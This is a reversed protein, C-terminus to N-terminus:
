MNKLISLATESAADLLVVKRNVSAAKDSTSIGNIHWPDSSGLGVAIIQNEDVGLEEVLTRKVREAREQSLTMTYNSDSDGATCGCLLIKINNKALYAAIPKLTYIVDDPYLYEAKDGIFTVMEETLVIPEEFVNEESAELIEPKFSIPTDMPFEVPTVTPYEINENVPMPMADNCIFTGGGAEVFGSYLQELNNRQASTPQQQPAAVDCMHQWYVMLGSFNPIESKEKLMDVIMNPDASILNNNFNLVGSTSLGTGLVIIKKSDYGNLSSLSRVALNLAAHYDVQPDNAIVSQMSSILKTAKSRADMDLKQKSANKFRVEVDQSEGYVVEPDGDASIISVYGWSRVAEYVSDQVLPSSFNLGKSCATNAVVFCVASKKLTDNKKDTNECGTFGVILTLVCFISLIMIIFKKM